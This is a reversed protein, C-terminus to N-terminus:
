WPHRIHQRKTLSIDYALYGMLAMNTAKGLRDDKYINLMGFNSRAGVILRKGNEGLNFNVGIGATIGVDISRPTLDAAVISDATGIYPAIVDPNNYSVVSLGYAFYPGGELFFYSKPQSVRYPILQKKKFPMMYQITIPIQVYSGGGALMITFGDGDIQNTPYLMARSDFLIDGEMILKKYIQHKYGLGALIGVGSTAGEYGQAMSLGAGGKVQLWQQADSQVSFGTIILLSLLIKKM